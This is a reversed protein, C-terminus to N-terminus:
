LCLAQGIKALDIMLADSRVAILLLAGVLLACVVAVVLAKARAPFVASTHVESGTTDIM